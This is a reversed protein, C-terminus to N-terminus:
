PNKSMNNEWLGVFVRLLITSRMTDVHELGMATRSRQLNKKVADVSSENTEALSTLDMGWAWMFSLKFQKDTLEPFLVRMQILSDLQTFNFVAM